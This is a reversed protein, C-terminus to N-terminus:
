NHFVQKNTYRRQINTYILIMKLRLIFHGENQNPNICLSTHKTALSYNIKLNINFTLISFEVRNASIHDFFNEILRNFFLYFKNRLDVEVQQPSM